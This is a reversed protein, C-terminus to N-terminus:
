ASSWWFEMAMASSCRFRRVNDCEETRRMSQLCRGDHSLFTRLWVELGLAASTTVVASKAVLWVALARMILTRRKDMAM